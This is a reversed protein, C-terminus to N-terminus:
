AVAGAESASASRGPGHLLRRLGVLEEAFFVARFPPSQQDRGQPLNLLLYM